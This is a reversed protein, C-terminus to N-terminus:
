PFNLTMLSVRQQSCETPLAGVVQPIAAQFGRYTPHYRGCFACRKAVKWLREILYLERSYAPLFLGPAGPGVQAALAQM